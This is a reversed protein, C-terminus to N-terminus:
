QIYTIISFTDVSTSVYTNLKDIMSSLLEKLEKESNCYYVDDGESHHVQLVYNKTMGKGGKCM